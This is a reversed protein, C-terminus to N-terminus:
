HPQPHQTPSQSPSTTNTIVQHTGPVPQPIAYNFIWTLLLVFILAAAGWIIVQVTHPIRAWWNMSARRSAGPPSDLALIDRELQRIFEPNPEPGIYLSVLAQKLSGPVVNHSQAKM